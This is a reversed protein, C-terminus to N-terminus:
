YVPITQFSQLLWQEINNNVKMTVSRIYQLKQIIFWDDLLPARRQWMDMSCLIKKRWGIVFVKDLVIVHGNGWRSLCHLNWVVNVISLCISILTLKNFFLCKCKRKTKIARSSLPEKSKLLPSKLCIQVAVTVFGFHNENTLMEIFDWMIFM